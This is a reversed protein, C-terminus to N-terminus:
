FNMNEMRTLRKDLELLKADIIRVAENYTTQPDLSRPPLLPIGNIPSYDFTIQCPENEFSESDYPKELFIVQKSVVMEGKKVGKPLSYSIKIKTSSEIFDVMEFDRELISVNDSSDFELDMEILKGAENMVNVPNEPTTIYLGPRTIEAKLIEGQEGTKTVEIETYEGTLNGSSSSTIGGQAYLKDGIQYKFSSEGIDLISSAQYEEFTITASDNPALKYSYNGKISLTDGFAEFKKKININETNEARYFIDNVGLKIFAGNKVAIARDSKIYLRNSGRELSAEFIEPKM